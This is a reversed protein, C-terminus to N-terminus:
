KKKAAKKVLSTLAPKGKQFKFITLSQEMFDKFQKETLQAEFDKGVSVKYYNTTYTINKGESYSFRTFHKQTPEVNLNGRM